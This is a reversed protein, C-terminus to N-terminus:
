FESAFGSKLMLADDGFAGFCLSLHFSDVFQYVLDSSNGFLSLCIWM